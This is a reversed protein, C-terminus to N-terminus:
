PSFDCYASYLVHEARLHGNYYWRFITEIRYTGQGFKSIPSWGAFIPGFPNYAPSYYHVRDRPLAKFYSRFDETRWDNGGAYTQLVHVTRLFNIRGVKSEYAQDGVEEDNGVIDSNSPDTCVTATVAWYINAGSIHQSHQTFASAVPTAIGLVLTVM